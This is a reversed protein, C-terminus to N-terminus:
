GRLRLRMHLAEPAMAFGAREGPAGGHLTDWTDIEFRVLLMVLAVKMELLALYRGPCIRPGGGFPMSARKNVDTALWREPDFQAANGHCTEEMSSRMACMIMTGKDIIVGGIDTDCLAEASLLVTPPKLRLAEHIYADVFDLDDIQEFSSADM